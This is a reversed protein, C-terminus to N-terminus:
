GGPQTETIDSIQIKERDYYGNREHSQVSLNCLWTKKTHKKKRRKEHHNQSLRLVVKTMRFLLIGGM